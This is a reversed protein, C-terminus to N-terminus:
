GGDYDRGEKFAWYVTSGPTEAAREAEHSTYVLLDVPFDRKGLAMLALGQRQIFPIDTEAIVLLDYDSELSSRGTARSGFLIMRKVDFSSKLRDYIFKLTEAESM